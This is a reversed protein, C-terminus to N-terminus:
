LLVQLDLINWSDMQPTLKVLALLDFINWSNTSKCSNTHGIAAFWPHKLLKKSWHSCFLLHELPFNSWPNCILATGPTLKVLALLDLINWSNSWHSCILSTELPLKVLPQLDFINWSHTQGIGKLWERDMIKPAVWVSFIQVTYLSHWLASSRSPSTTRWTLLPRRICGLWLLWWWGHSNRPRRWALQWQWCGGIEPGVGVLNHQQCHGGHLLM